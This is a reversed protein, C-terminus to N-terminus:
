SWEKVAESVFMIAGCIFWNSGWGDFDMFHCCEDDYKKLLDPKLCWASCM